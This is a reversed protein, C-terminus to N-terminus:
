EALISKLEMFATEKQEVKTKRIASRLVGDWQKEPLEAKMDLLLELVNEDDLTNFIQHGDHQLLEFLDQIYSGADNRKGDRRALTREKKERRRLEREIREQDTRKM